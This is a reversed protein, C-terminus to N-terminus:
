VVTQLLEPTKGSKAFHPSMYRQLNFYTLEEDGTIKLLTALEKDPNIKRGNTKDQLNHARIYTNIERTVETRAMESGSPKQLFNALEDSILAPKVFGSPSRNGSKRKRKANIKQALKLERVAKKELRRFEIKLVNIHSALTQIKHFFSTFTTSFMQDSLNDASDLDTLPDVVKNQTVLSDKALSDKASTDKKATEKKPTDKAPTGKDPKPSKVKMKKTDVLILTDTQPVEALEKPTTMESKAKVSSKGKPM